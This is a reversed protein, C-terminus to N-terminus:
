IRKWNTGTSSDDLVIGGELLEDRIRDAESFNKNKRYLERETILEEIKKDTLTIEMTGQKFYVEPDLQLIGLIKGLYYLMLLDNNHVGRNVKQVLDFLCAIAVPTNIDDDMALKFSKATSNGWDIKYPSKLLNQLLENHDRLVQYLRNLSAKADKLASENFNLPSRYHARLLFFRVVEPPFKQLVDRITRFNGLSKSMKEKDITVFGNHIWLNVTKGGCASESQAIENEHHPFQLDQGGGHIDFHEGLHKKSMASCEIHWGPRGNGFDSAWMPEGEKAAKWLVFDLPDQKEDDKAVREGARLDDISKGSLKGYTAFSRVSFCVDGTKTKYAFGKELLKNIMEQMENIHETALPEVDPPINGLAQEDEHMANIFRQTLTNISEKNEIARNIIKDDIDTINRVFKLNYDNARLWRAIVDFVVMARAHGIHCYDYVTVGCVYMGVNPSNIPKFDEKKRTLTNYFQM